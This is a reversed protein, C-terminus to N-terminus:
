TRLALPLPADPVPYSTLLFAMRSVRLVKRALALEPAESNAHGCQLCALTLAYWARARCETHGVVGHSLFAQMRQVQRWGAQVLAAGSAIDVVHATGREGDDHLLTFAM